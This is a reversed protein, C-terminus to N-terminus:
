EKMLIIIEDVNEHRASNNIREKKIESEKLKGERM